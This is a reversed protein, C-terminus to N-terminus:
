AQPLEIVFRAGGLPGDEVWIRGHMLEVLRASIALGLGAGGSSSSRSADLRAFRDFVVTRRDAPVGPGDDDVVLRWRGAACHASVRVTGGERAHALANSVVASVCQLLREPDALPAPVPSVDIELDIGRQEAVAHFRGALADSITALDVPVAVIEVAGADLQALNLLTHTIEAIRASERVIVEAARQQGADDAITGDRLAQAFGSISTLPTRIEHSVDGVFAQQAAYADAIRASMRNFSNALSAIEAPGERDVQAGWEGAAIREAGAELAVLPRTLRGALWGGALWAIVLAVALALAGLALVGTQAARIESLRQVAVLLRGEGAPAAVVLLNSGSAARVTAARVGAEDAAQLRGLDLSRVTTNEESTRIVAGQEDTIFLAAGLLRAEVRLLQDRVSGTSGQAIQEAAAIAGLQRSLETTRADVVFASWGVSFVGFAVLLVAASAGAIALRTRTVFSQPRPGAAAREATM